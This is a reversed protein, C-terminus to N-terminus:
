KRGDACAQGKVTGDRKEKLFMPFELAYEKEKDSIKSVNIPTFTSKM